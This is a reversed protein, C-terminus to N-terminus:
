TKTSMKAQDVEACVMEVTTEDLIAAM